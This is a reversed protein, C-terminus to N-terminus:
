WAPKVSAPPEHTSSVYQAGNGAGWMALGSIALAVLLRSIELKTTPVPHDKPVSKKGNLMPWVLNDKKFRAYFIIAALHLTVLAALLNFILNHLGSLKDSTSKDVLNFLPGQFAIDDNSFLGSVVLIILVGLLAIVSLAGLPNHGLGQWQGQLYAKIKGPTPFFNIFRAHTSGIFGWIIRFVLLGVILVGLRGHWDILNGGTEGTIVAATVSLALLWHFARLPWDWVEIKVSM